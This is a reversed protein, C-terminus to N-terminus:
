HIKNRNQLKRVYLCPEWIIQPLNHCARSTTDVKSPLTIRLWSKICKESIQEIKCLVLVLKHAILRGPEPKLCTCFHSQIKDSIVFFVYQFNLCHHDDIEGIDLFRVIAEWRLGNFLFFINDCARRIKVFRM